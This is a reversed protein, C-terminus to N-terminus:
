DQNCHPFALSIYLTIAQLGMATLLKPGPTRRGNLVDHLYSNSVGLRQACDRLSSGNVQRQLREVVQSHTLMLERETPLRKM